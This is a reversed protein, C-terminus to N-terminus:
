KVLAETTEKDEVVGFSKFRRALEELAVAVTAACTVNGVARVVNSAWKSARLRRWQMTPQRPYVHVALDQLLRRNRWNEVQSLLEYLKDKKQQLELASPKAHPDRWNTSAMLCSRGKAVADALEQQKRQIERTIEETARTATTMRRPLLRRREGAVAPSTVAAQTRQLVSGGIRRAGQRLLAAM